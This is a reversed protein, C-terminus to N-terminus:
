QLRNGDGGALNLRHLSLIDKEHSVRPKFSEENRCVRKEGPNYKHFTKLCSKWTTRQKSIRLRRTISKPPNFALFRGDKAILYLGIPLESFTLQQFLELAKADTLM